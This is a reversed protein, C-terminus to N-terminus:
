EEDGEEDAPALAGATKAVEMIREQVKAALAPNQALFDLVKEKGQFAGSGVAPNAFEAGFEPQLDLWGGNKAIVGLLLGYDFVQEFTNFTAKKVGLHPADAFYLIFKGKGYPVVGTVKAKTLTFNFQAGIKVPESGGLKGKVDVKKGPSLDIEVSAAYKQGEGGPKVRPDGHMVGVKLRWQNVVIVAPKNPNEMGLSNLAAQFARWARNNVRAAVGVLQDEFSKEVEQGPAAQALSDVVFVDLEGTRLLAQATDYGQESWAPAMYILALTDVGHAEAWEFDFTGEIDQYACIQAVNEGCTCQTDVVRTEIKQPNKYHYEFRTGCARCTHQAQAILKLCLTTKHSSEPGVLFTLRGKPVGGGLKVDLEFIGTPIRPVGAAYAHQSARLITGAGFEKNVAAMVAAVTPRGTPKKAGPASAPAADRAAGKKQKEDKRPM